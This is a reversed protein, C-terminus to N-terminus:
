ESRMKGAWETPYLPDWIPFIYVQFRPIPPPGVTPLPRHVTDRPCALLTQNRPVQRRPTRTLTVKIEGSPQVYFSRVSSCGWRAGMGGLVGWQQWNKIVFLRQLPGGHFSFCDFPTPGRVRFSIPNCFTNLYFLTLVLDIHCIFNWLYLFSSMKQFTQIYKSFFKEQGVEGGSCPRGM